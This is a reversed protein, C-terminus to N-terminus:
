TSTLMLYSYMYPMEWIDQWMTFEWYIVMSIYVQAFHYIKSRSIGLTYFKYGDDWIKM